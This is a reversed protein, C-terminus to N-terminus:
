LFLPVLQAAIAVGILAFPYTAAYGIAPDEAETLQNVAGLGPTSTMAGSLSGLSLVMSFKFLGRAVYFGVLIPIITIITGGVVLRLGETQIVDIIGQGATTGVGALFLVLGIDGIVQNAPAYYRAHIPGVNGFHSIILAVCLPGGAVGLTITGLGPLYIPIMGILIGILLIMSLSFFMSM